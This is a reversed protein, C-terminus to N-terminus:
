YYRGLQEVIAKKMDHPNITGQKAYVKKGEPSILLTYPLAGQWEPDIAEILAYKDEESFIYNTTAAANKDNLFKLM